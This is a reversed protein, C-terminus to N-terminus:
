GEVSPRRAPATESSVRYERRGQEYGILAGVPAGVAAGALVGLAQTSRQSLPFSGGTSGLAFGLAVGTALGFGADRLVFSRRDRVRVSALAGLPVIRVEGTAADTWTAEAADLRFTSTAVEEGSPLTVVVGGRSARDNVDARHAAASLDLPQARTHACGSLVSLAAVAVALRRRLDSLDSM